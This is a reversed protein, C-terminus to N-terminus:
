IIDNEKLKDLLNKNSLSNLETSYYNFIKKLKEKEKIIDEKSLTELYEEFIDIDVKIGLLKLNVFVNLIKESFYEDEFLRGYIVSFCLSSNKELYSTYTDLQNSLGSGKCTPCVDDKVAGYGNCTPCSKKYTIKKTLFSNIISDLENKKTKDKLYKKAISYLCVSDQYNLPFGNLIFLHYIDLNNPFISYNNESKYKPLITDFLFKIISYNNQNNLIFESNRIEGSNDMDIAKKIDYGKNYLLILIRIDEIKDFIYTPINDITFSSGWSDAIIKFIDYTKVINSSLKYTSIDLGNKILLNLLQFNNDEIISDLDEFLYQVAAGKSILYKIKELDNISKRLLIGNFANIDGGEKIFEDIEYINIDGSRIKNNIKIEKEKISIHKEMLTMGEYKTDKDNPDIKDLIQFFPINEQKLFEKLENESIFTNKSDQCAGEKIKKSLGLTIGITWRNNKRAEKTFDYIYFQLKYEGDVLKNVGVYSDWYSEGNTTWAICHSSRKQDKYKTGGGNLIYNAKYSNVQVILKDEDEWLIDVGQKKGFKRNIDEIEELTTDSTTPVISGLEDESEELIKEVDRYRMSKRTIIKAKNSDGKIYNIESVQATQNQLDKSTLNYFLLKLNVEQDIPGNDKNKNTFIPMLKVFKAIKFLPDLETLKDGIKETLIHFDSDTLNNPDKFINSDLISKIYNSLNYSKSPPKIPGNEFPWWSPINEKNEKGIYDLLSYTINNGSEKSKFTYNNNKGDVGKFKIILFDYFEKFAKFSVNKLTDFELFIFYNPNYKIESLSNFFNELDDKSINDVIYFKIFLPILAFATTSNIDCLIDDKRKRITLIKLINNYIFESISKSILEKPSNIVNKEITELSALDVIEKLEKNLSEKDLSGNITYKKVLSSELKNKYIYKNVVKKIDDSFTNYQNYYISIYSDINKKGITYAENILQLKHEEIKKIFKM